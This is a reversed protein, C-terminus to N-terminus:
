PPRITKALFQRMTPSLRNTTKSQRTSNKEDSLVNALLHYSNGIEVNDNKPYLKKALTVCERDIQEAEEFSNTGRLAQGLHLLAYLTYPHNTGITTKKLDVAMRAYTVADNYAKTDIYVTSLWDYMSARNFDAKHKSNLVLAKSFYKVANQYDASATCLQGLQRYLDEKDKDSAKAQDALVIAKNLLSRAQGYNSPGHSSESAAQSALQQWPKAFIITSLVMSCVIAIPLLLALLMAFTIKSRRNSQKGLAHSSGKFGGLSIHKRPKKGAAVLRLDALLDSASAYRDAPSKQLCRSVIAMMDPSIPRGDVTHKPRPAEEHVHKMLVRMPNEGTFPPAGTLAEFMLCGFSYIDSRSDVADGLCQEPSMYLPSGFLDGSQTLELTSRDVSEFVKAIGFDLLKVQPHSLDGSIFVNSPKLDRHIVGKAHAHQLAEVIDVFIKSAVEPVLPGHMLLTDSLNAGDLYDMVIYPAGSTTCGYTHINVMNPHSLRSAALAESEFRKVSAVDNAFENKLVKVALDGELTNSRAKFITGMGGEGIVRQIDFGEIEPFTDSIDTSQARKHKHSAEEGSESRQYCTCSSNSFIWSTFSGKRLSRIPLKCLPCLGKSSKQQEDIHEGTSEFLKFDEKVPEKFSM